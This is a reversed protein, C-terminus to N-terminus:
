ISPAAESIRKIGTWNTDNEYWHSQLDSIILDLDADM